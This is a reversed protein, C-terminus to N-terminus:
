APGTLAARGPPDDATAAGGRDRRLAAAAGAALAAGAGTLTGILHERQTLGNIIAVETAHYVILAAAMWVVRRALAVYALLAVVAVSPGADAFHALGRGVGLPPELLIWAGASVTALGHGLVAVVLTRRAGILAQALSYVVTVQLVAFWFPLLAAPAFMSLPMRLLTAPLPDGPHTIAYRAVFVHGPATRTALALAIVLVAAAPGTWLRDIRRRRVAEAAPGLLAACQGALSRLHRRLWPPGPRGRISDDM